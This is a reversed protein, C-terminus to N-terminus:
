VASCHLTICNLITCHLAIYKLAICHLSSCQMTIYHGASCQDRKPQPLLGYATRKVKCLSYFATFLFTCSIIQSRELLTSPLATCPATCYHFTTCAAACILKSFPPTGHLVTCHLAAYHLAAYHLAAYHLAAYYLATYQLATCPFAYHSTCLLQRM